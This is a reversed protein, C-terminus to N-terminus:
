RTTIAKWVDFNPSAYDKLNVRQGLIKVFEVGKSDTCVWQLRFPNGSNQIFNWVEKPIFRVM